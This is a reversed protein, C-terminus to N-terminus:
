RWWFIFLHTLVPYPFLHKLTYCFIGVRWAGDSVRDVVCIGAQWAMDCSPHWGNSVCRRRKNRLTKLNFLQKFLRHRSLSLASRTSTQDKTINPHPTSVGLPQFVFPPTQCYVPLQTNWICWTANTKINLTLYNYFLTVSYPSSPLIKHKIIIDLATM